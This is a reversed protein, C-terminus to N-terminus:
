HVCAIILVRVLVVLISSIIKCILMILDHIDKSEEYKNLNKSRPLLSECKTPQLCASDM